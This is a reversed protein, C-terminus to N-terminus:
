PRRKAKPDLSEDYRKIELTVGKQLYGTKMLRNRDYPEVHLCGHSHDLQLPSHVRHEEQEKRLAAETKPDTHVFLGPSGLVQFGTEGFDNKRWEKM